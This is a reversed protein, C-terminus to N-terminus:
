KRSRKKIEESVGKSPILLNTGGLAPVALVGNVTSLPVRQGVESEGQGAVGELNAGVVVDKFDLAGADTAEHTHVERLGHTGQSDQTVGEQAAPVTDVVNAVVGNTQGLGFLKELTQHDSSSHFDFFWAILL